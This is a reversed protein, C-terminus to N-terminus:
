PGNRKLLRMQPLCASDLQSEGYGLAFPMLIRALLGAARLMTMVYRLRKSEVALLEERLNAVVVPRISNAIRRVLIEADLKPLVFRRCTDAETEPMSPPEVSPFERDFGETTCALVM